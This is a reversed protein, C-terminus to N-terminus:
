AQINKSLWLIVTYSSNAVAGVTSFAISGTASAVDGDVPLGGIRTFDMEGAGSVILADANPMGVWEIRLCNMGQIDYDVSKIRLKTGPYKGNHGLPGTKTADVKVVNTEATGDSFCTLRIVANDAGNAIIQSTTTNPM